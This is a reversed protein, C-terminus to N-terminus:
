RGYRITGIFLVPDQPIISLKLRLDELGIEAIDIGDIKIFGSTLDVLRFLCVGLSSKGSGTRGVIGVVFFLKFYISRIALFDEDEIGIKERPEIKFSVNKLVLPLNKRYRMRVKAFEISGKEPWNAPPRNEEIVGPGEEELSQM